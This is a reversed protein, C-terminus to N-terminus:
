QYILLIKELYGLLIKNQQNLNLLTFKRGIINFNDRNDYKLLKYLNENSINKNNYDIIQCHSISDEDYEHEVNTECIFIYQKNNIILGVGNIYTTAIISNLVIGRFNEEDENDNFYIEGSSKIGYIYIKEPEYDICIFFIDNNPMEISNITFDDNGNFKLLLIVLLIIEM